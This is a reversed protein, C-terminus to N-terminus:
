FEKGKLDNQDPEYTTNILLFFVSENRQYIEETIGYGELSM